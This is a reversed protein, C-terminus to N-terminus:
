RRNGEPLFRRTVAAERTHMLGHATAMHAAMLARARPGDGDRLAEILRRQYALGSTWLEPDTPSHLGRTVTVESLLEALFRIVFRLLPNESLAALEAHFRLSAAHRAAEGEASAAPPASEALTGELEALQAPSLRGALSEALEPELASRLQYIDDITPNAFYVYNGLLAAARGESVQHVFVGGGPGTRSKVLGQAELLRIAERITGKAMAFRRILETESPLRHGPQLGEDMVWQKIAEAVKQPRSLRTESRITAPPM